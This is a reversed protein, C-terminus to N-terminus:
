ISNPTSRCEGTSPIAEPASPLSDHTFNTNKPLPRSSNTLLKHTFRTMSHQQSFNGELLNFRVLRVQPSCSSPPFFHRTVFRAYALIEGHEYVRDIKLQRTAKVYQDGQIARDSSGTVFSPDFVVVKSIGARGKGPKQAYAAHQALGGGLSHGVTTVKRPSCGLKKAAADIMRDIHDRTQEYQDYFPLYRTVWRFNSIWDDSQNFDTGRFAVVIEGCPDSNRAWIQVGIGDLTRGRDPPDIGCQGAKGDRDLDRRGGQSEPISCDNIWNLVPSRGWIAYFEALLGNVQRCDLDADCVGIGSGHGTKIGYLKDDYALSAIVAYQSYLHAVGTTGVFHPASNIDGVLIRATKPDQKPEFNSCGVLLFLNAALFIVFRLGSM